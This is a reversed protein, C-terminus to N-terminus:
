SDRALHSQQDDPRQGARALFPRGRQRTARGGRHDRAKAHEFAAARVHARESRRAHSRQVGPRQDALEAATATM